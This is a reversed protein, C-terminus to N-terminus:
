QSPRWPRPVILGPKTRAAIKMCDLYSEFLPDFLPVNMGISNLALKLERKLEDQEAYGFYFTNGPTWLKSSPCIVRPM